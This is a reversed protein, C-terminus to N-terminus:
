PNPIQRVGIQDLPVPIFGQQQSLLKGMGSIHASGVVVLMTDLEPNQEFAKILNGVMTKNRGRRFSIELASRAALHVIDYKGLIRKMGNLIVLTGVVAGGAELASMSDGATLAGGLECVASGITYVCAALIGPIAVSGLNEALDPQHGEELAFVLPGKKAEIELEGILELLRSGPITAEGIKIKLNDAAEKSLNSLNSDSAIRKLTELVVHNRGRDAADDITSGRNVKGFSFIKAVVRLASLSVGLAKGGWTKSSDIRELGYAEFKEIVEKGLESNEKDKYHTEGFFVLTRAKGAVEGSYVAVKYHDNKAAVSQLVNLQDSSLLEYCQSKVTTGLTDGAQSMQPQSLASLFLYLPLYPM